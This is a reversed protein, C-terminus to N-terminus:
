LLVLNFTGLIIHVTKWDMQELLWEGLPGFTFTGIGTGCMAIGIAIARKKEFYLSVSIVAPLYMLGFGIGTFQSDTLYTYINHSMWLLTLPLNVSITLPHTIKFM